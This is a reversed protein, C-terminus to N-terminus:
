DTIIKLQFSDEENAETVMDNALKQSDTLPPPPAQAVARNAERLEEILESVEQVFHELTEFRFGEQASDYHPMIYGYFHKRNRFTFKVARDQGSFEFIIHDNKFESSLCSYITNLVGFPVSVVSLLNENQNSIDQLCILPELLNIPVEKYYLDKSYKPNEIFLLDNEIKMNAGKTLENWYENGFIKGDMYFMIKQLEELEHDDEIGSEITFYDYLNCVFCFNNRLVIANNNLVIIGRRPDNEPLDKLDKTLAKNLAPFKVTIM